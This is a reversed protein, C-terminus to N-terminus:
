NFGPRKGLIVQRMIAFDISDVRGDCNVDAVKMQRETLDKVKGLLYARMLAFDLSNYNGNGDLDGMLVDDPEEVVWVEYTRSGVTFDLESKHVANPTEKNNLPNNKIDM